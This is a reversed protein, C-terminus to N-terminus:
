RKTAKKKAKIKQWMEILNVDSNCRISMLYPENESELKTSFVSSVYQIIVM